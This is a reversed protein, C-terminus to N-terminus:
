RQAYEVTAVHARLGDEPSPVVQILKQRLSGPQPNTKLQQLYALRHPQSPRGKLHGTKGNGGHHNCRHQPDEDREFQEAPVFLLLDPGPGFESHCGYQQGEQKQARVLYRHTVRTLRPHGIGDCRSLM